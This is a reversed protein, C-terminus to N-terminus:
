HAQWMWVVFLTRYYANIITLFTTSKYNPMERNYWRERMCAYLMNSAERQWAEPLAKLKIATLPVSAVSSNM